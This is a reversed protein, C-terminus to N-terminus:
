LKVGLDAKGGRLGNSIVIFEFVGVLGSDGLPMFENLLALVDPSWDFSHVYGMVFIGILFAVAIHNGISQSFVALVLFLSDYLKLVIYAKFRIGNM